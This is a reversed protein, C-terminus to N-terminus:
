STWWSIASTPDNVAPSIAKLAIDVIQLVGFEVDQQLTRTPGMDFAGRFDSPVAEPSLRELKSARSFRFEPPFLIASGGFRTCKCM